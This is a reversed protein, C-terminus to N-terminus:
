PLLNDLAFNYTNTTCTVTHLTKIYTIIHKTVHSNPTYTVTRSNTGSMCLCTCCRFLLMDSLCGIFHRVEPKLAVIMEGYRPSNYHM